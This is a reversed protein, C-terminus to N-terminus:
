DSKEAGWATIHINRVDAFSESHGSRNFEVDMEGIEGGNGRISLHEIPHVMNIMLDGTDTLHISMTGGSAQGAVSFLVSYLLYVFVKVHKASSVSRNREMFNQSRQM